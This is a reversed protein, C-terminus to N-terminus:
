AAEKEVAVVEEEPHDGIEIIMFYSMATSFLSISEVRKWGLQEADKHQALMWATGLGNPTGLLAKFKDGDEEKFVKRQLFGLDLREGGEGVMLRDIVGCTQMNSISCQVIRKLQGPTSTLKAWQLYTVDSWHGLFPVAEGAEAEMLPSKLKAAFITQGSVNYHQHYQGSSYETADELDSQGWLISDNEAASTSFGYEGAIEQMGTGGAISSNHAWLMRWGNKDLDSYNKWTSSSTLRPPKNIEQLLKNGRAVADEYLPDPLLSM